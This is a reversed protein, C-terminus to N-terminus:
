AGTTPSVGLDSVATLADAFHDPQEVHVLPISFNDTFMHVQASGVIFALEAGREEVGGALYPISVTHSLNATFLHRVEDATRILKPELCSCLPTAPPRFTMQEIAPGLFDEMFAYLPSHYAAQVGDQIELAFSPVREALEEIAARYGSLLHLRMRGQAIVGLDAAVYVDDPVRGLFEDAPLEAPTFLSAVTQPPGEPEPATRFRALLRFLDARDVAGAMCAGVLNGFSLGALVDPRLGREALLDGIALVLVAQRIAGVERYERQAPLEWALMREVPVGTWEAVSAYLSRVTAFRQYLDAGSGPPDNLGGGMIFALTM